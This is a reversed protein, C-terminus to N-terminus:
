VGTLLFDTAALIDHRIEALSGISPLLLRKPVAALQDILLVLREGEVEIIPNLHRIPRVEDGPRALPVVIRTPLHALTDAQVDVLFPMEASSGHNPNPHIDYQAM